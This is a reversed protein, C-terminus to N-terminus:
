RTLKGNGYSSTVPFGVGSIQEGSSITDRIMNIPSQSVDFSVYLDKLGIVDNSQPFAQIEIIKNDLNTSAINVTFLQIEGKTYDVIGANKVVTTYNAEGDSANPNESIYSIVGKGSGDLQGAADTNPTDTIFLTASNGTIKFGSSKVSGGGPIIHFANGYCLEYQAFQNEAANLNRRIIVKTINSTVASSTDDIVKQCKSYKFRGGFKNIDISGAYANLSRVVASKLTNATTTKTTDYYVASEIEVFLVKLDVIQQNIGAITYQKLGDLINKKDFDSVEVGNVPKISILVNGFQPPILEEGGVVSISETNPYLQKIIGEYDRGTVARYQAGYVRPAYYKISEVSEVDAGNRAATITTVDVVNSPSVPNGLDDILSGAFSFQSAGDGGKGDGIIYTSEITQKNVLAKGFINDGFLLEYNEQNVEALFYVESNKDIRIINKVREWEQGLGVDNEDRVRVVLTSFDINPNNIIYRQDLSTDVPFSTRAFTGQYITIPDSDIGFVAVGQNVTATIPEPISFVYSSNDETGVCVLGAKLTLTSTSSGTDISFRVQAQASKQSRPLYGINGALSVVNRRLTASDLFSENVIMNANVSNIYANYALTDILVSFNSGDFDFGTFDSNARLYDKISEKIQDYDLNTFKTFAM